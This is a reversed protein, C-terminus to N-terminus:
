AKAGSGMVMAGPPVTVHTLWSPTSCVAVGAWAPWNVSVPSNFGLPEFATVKVAGPM